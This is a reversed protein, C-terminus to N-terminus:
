ASKVVRGRGTKCKEEIFIAGQERRDAIQERSDAIQERWGM